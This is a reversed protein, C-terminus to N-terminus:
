KKGNKGVSNIDIENDIKEPVPSGFGNKLATWVAGWIDVDPKKMAGAFEVKSAAEKDNNRLILNATGIVFDNLGHRFSMFHEHSAVMKANEFFPKVYGKIQGDKAAVESFLSLTGRAFSFPGYVLFFKNLSVLDFKKMEANMDFAVPERLANFKAKAVLNANSQLRATLTASSPLLEKKNDTNKLNYASLMIQDLMVDVPIRYDNNVFHIESDMLRVSEMEIPFLDGAVTKWNKEETGIQKKEPKESDTIYVKLGEITLDGLFKGKFLARWAISLDIEKAELLPKYPSTGKKWLKMGQIQYAGRYLSLDFDNIHGQYAEIKNALYYNMGTRIGYPLVWRIGILVVLIVLFVRNM